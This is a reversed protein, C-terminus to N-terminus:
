RNQGPRGKEATRTGEQRHGGPPRHARPARATGQQSYQGPTGDPPVPPPSKRQTPKPITKFKANTNVKRRFQEFTNFSSKAFFKNRNVMGLVYGEPNGASYEQLWNKNWAAISKDWWERWERPPSKLKNTTINNQSINLGRNRHISRGFDIIKVVSGDPSALVNSLHMDAHVLGTRWMALVAKQLKRIFSKFARIDEPKQSTTKNYLKYAVDHYSELGPIYEMAHNPGPYKTQNLM